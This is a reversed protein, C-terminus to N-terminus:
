QPTQIALLRVSTALGLGLNLTGIAAAQESPPVDVRVGDSVLTLTHDPRALLAGVEAALLKELGPACTVLLTM